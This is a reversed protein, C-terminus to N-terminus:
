RGKHQDADYDLRPLTRELATRATVKVQIEEIM